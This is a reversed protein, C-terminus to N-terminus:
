WLQVLVLPPHESSDPEDHQSQGATNWKKVDWEHLLVIFLEVQRLKIHPRPEETADHVDAAGEHVAETNGLLVVWHLKVNATGTVLYM